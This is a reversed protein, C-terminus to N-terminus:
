IILQISETQQLVQSKIVLVRRSSCVVIELCYLDVSVGNFGCEVHTLMQYRLPYTENAYQSESLTHIDNYM